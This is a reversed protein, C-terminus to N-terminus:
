WGAAGNKGKTGRPLVKGKKTNFLEDYKDAVFKRGDTTLYMRIGQHRYQKAIEPKRQTPVTPRFEKAKAGRTNTTSYYIEM